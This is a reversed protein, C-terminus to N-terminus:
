WWWKVKEVIQFNSETATFMEGCNGRGFFKFIGGFWGSIRGCMGDIRVVCETEFNSNERSEWWLHILFRREVRSM